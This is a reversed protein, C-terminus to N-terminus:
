TKGARQGGVHMPGGLGARWTIVVGTVPMQSTAAAVPARLPLWPLKHVRSCQRGIRDTRSIVFSAAAADSQRHTARGIVLDGSYGRGRGGELSDVAGDHNM